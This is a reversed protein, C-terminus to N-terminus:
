RHTRQRQPLNATCCCQLPTQQFCTVGIFHRIAAAAAAAAGVVRKHVMHQAYQLVQRNLMQLHMTRADTTTRRVGKTVSAEAFWGTRTRRRNDTGRPAALSHCTVTRQWRRAQEM